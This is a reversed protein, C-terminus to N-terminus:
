KFSGALKQYFERGLWGGKLEGLLKEMKEVQNDSCMFNLDNVHWALVCGKYEVVLSKFFPEIIM